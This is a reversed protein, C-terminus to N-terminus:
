EAISLCVQLHTHAKGWGQEQLGQGGGRATTCICECGWDLLLVGQFAVLM